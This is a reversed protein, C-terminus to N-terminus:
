GLREAILAKVRDLSVGGLERAGARGREEARALLQRYGDHGHVSTLWAIRRWSELARHVGSLDLSETATAMAERWQRDFEVVDEPVLAARVQRPSADAFPPGGSTPESPVAAATMDGLM